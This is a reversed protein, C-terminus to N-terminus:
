HQQELYIFFLKLNSYMICLFLCHFSVRDIATQRKEAPILDIKNLVVIMAHCTIQGIVLCEATQTQMGKVIDLVLFM